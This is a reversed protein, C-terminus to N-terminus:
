FDNENNKSLNNVIKKYQNNEEIDIVILIELKPELAIINDYKAFSLETKNVHM